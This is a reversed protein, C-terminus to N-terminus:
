EEEEEMDDEYIDDYLLDTRLPFEPRSATSQCLPQSRSAMVSLRQRQQCCTIIEAYEKDKGKSDRWKCFIVSADVNTLLVTSVNQTLNWVESPLEGSQADDVPLDLISICVDGNEYINPYWMEWNYLDSEEVLNINFAEVLQEQLSKLEM